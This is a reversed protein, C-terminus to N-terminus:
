SAAAGVPTAPRPARHAPPLLTREILGPSPDGQADGVLIVRDAHGLARASWASPTDDAVLVVFRHAASQEDLWAGVRIWSPHSDPRAAADHGVGAEHLHTSRLERASGFQGLAETLRRALDAVDVGPSAPM